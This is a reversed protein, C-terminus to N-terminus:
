FISIAGQEFLNAWFLGVIDTIHTWSHGNDTSRYVGTTNSTPGNYDHSALIDGNALRLLSPSGLFTGTEAAQYKVESIWLSDAELSDAKMMLQEREVM